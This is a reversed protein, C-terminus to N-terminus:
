PNFKILVGNKLIPLVDYKDITCCLEIDKRINYKELRKAHSSTLVIDLLNFKASQYNTLASFSADDALDFTPQLKEIIAGAFLTDELSYNGKWGACHIVVDKGTNILYNAVTSLNLFSGIVVDDAETSKTIALTGNTTTTAIKNGKFRDEMYSFPSNGIDFGEVKAGNREAATYYGERKLACCEDLSAVPKIQLVGSAIGTTMCSTARLIDTVVVIKGKLDFLHILDPSLCVEIKPM